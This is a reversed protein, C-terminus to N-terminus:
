SKRRIRHLQPRITLETIVTGERQTIMMRVAESIDEALLSAGDSPDATFDANRYLQTDTMDPLITM